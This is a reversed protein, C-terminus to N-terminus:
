KFFAVLSSVSVLLAKRVPRVLPVPQAPLVQPVKHGLQASQAQPVKLELQGL